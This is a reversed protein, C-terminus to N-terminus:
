VNDDNIQEGVIGDEERRIETHNNNVFDIMYQAYQCIDNGSKYKKIYDIIRPTYVKQVRLNKLYITRITVEVLRFSKRAKGLVMVSENGMGGYIFSCYVKTGASFQKTGSRIIKEKGWYHDGIINGVFCEEYVINNEDIM